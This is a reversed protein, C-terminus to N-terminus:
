ALIHSHTAIGKELPDEWNLSQGRTEWLAPLNKVRQAVLSARYWPGLLTTFVSIRAGPGKRISMSPPTQATEAHDVVYQSGSNDRSFPFPSNLFPSVM